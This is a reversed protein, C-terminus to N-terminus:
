ISKGAFEEIHAKMYPEFFEPGGVIQQIHYLFNFGKEYPVRSYADGPDIGKLAPQLATLPNDEGFLKVDAELESWGIISHFDSEKEGYLRGIIKRELFKTWGENLWFHEWNAATVLNGTWSHAVEHAVVCVLSRDGAILAPTIFTLCPNEMGGLPFSAPLVLLDYKKWEYPTLLKEGIAIFKETDEFEWAADQVIEPEAWVTSRPGIEKGALNGVALAILYSPIKVNQEFRYIKSKGDGIKEDGVSIASMLARLPHPVQINASYTLKFCPTDQCPLLSRAHIDQCQTFLYPHKKGVTQSPELWQTATGQITTNYSIELKFMIGAALPKELEIHLGTTGFCDIENNLHFKIKQRGDQSVSKIILSKTDLIVKNVNDAITILSLTVSGDLIKHEFDVRLNLEIHSTQIENINSLTSPDYYM